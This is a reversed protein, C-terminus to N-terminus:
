EATFRFAYLSAGRLRAVLRVPQGALTSVDRVLTRDPRLWAVEHEVFNGNIYLCDDVGFGAIPRGQEDEFGVQVYGTAGADVNLRLRSGEFRLLHTVFAGEREYPADLSVFGDLRQSLRQVVAGPVGPDAGGKHQDHYSTRTYSYQWIEEGRRVMGFAIYPRRMPLGKHNGVPVYAPRPYRTWEIGDRSVALQTEVLGTGLGLSPHALFQRTPPGDDPYHFFWLPFAVYTDPAEPYKMARTNYVDTAVPDLAPDPGM